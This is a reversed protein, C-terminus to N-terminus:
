RIDSIDKLVKFYEYLHELKRIKGLSGMVTGDLITENENLQEELRLHFNNVKEQQMDITECISRGTRMATKIKSSVTDDNVM